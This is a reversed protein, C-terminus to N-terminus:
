ATRRPDTFLCYLAGLLLLAYVIVSSWGFSNFLGHTTAWINIAGGVVDGVVAGILVARVALWEKFERAFWAVVGIELLASGFFQANLIANPQGPAIGYMDGLQGPILVFAIGYLIAVVAAITLYLKTDMIEEWIHTNEPDRSRVQANRMADIM